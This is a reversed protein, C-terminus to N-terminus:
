DSSRLPVVRPQVSPQEHENPDSFNQDPTSGGDGNETQKKNFNRGPYWEKLGWRGRKPSVVDGVKKARRHLVSAVTNGPNEGSLVVGGDQIAATIEAPSMLDRKAALVECAAKGISMGLFPNDDAHNEVAGHITVDLDDSASIQHTPAIGALKELNRITADLENRRKKLDAIVEAYANTEKPM